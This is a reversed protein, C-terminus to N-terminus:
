LAEAGSATNDHGYLNSQLANFGSATNDDGTINQRLANSGSATNANGVTNNKLANVGFATNDTGTTDFLLADTGGVTNGQVDSSTPDSPQGWGTATGFMFILSIVRSKCCLRRSKNRDCPCFCPLIGGPSFGATSRSTDKHQWQNLN